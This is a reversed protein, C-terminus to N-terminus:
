FSVYQHSLNVRKRRRLPVSVRRVDPVLEQEEALQAEAFPQAPQQDHPIEQTLECPLPISQAEVLIQQLLDQDDNINTGLNPHFSILEDNQQPSHQQDYTDVIMEPEFATAQAHDLPQQLQQDDHTNTIADLQTASSQAETVKGPDLSINTAVAHQASNTESTNDQAQHQDSGYLEVPHWDVDACDLDERQDYSKKSSEDSAGSDEAM